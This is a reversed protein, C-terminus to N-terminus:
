ANHEQQGAIRADHGAAYDCVSGTLWAAFANPAM